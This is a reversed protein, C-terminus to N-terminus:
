NEYQKEQQNIKHYKEFEIDFITTWSFWLTNFILNQINTITM